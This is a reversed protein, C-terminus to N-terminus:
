RMVSSTATSTTSTVVTFTKEIPTTPYNEHTHDFHFPVEALGEIYLQLSLCISIGLVLCKECKM